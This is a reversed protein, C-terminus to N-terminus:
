PPAIAGDSAASEVDCSYVKWSDVTSGSMRDRLVRARTIGMGMWLSRGARCGASARVVGCATSGLFEIRQKESRWIGRIRRHFVEDYNMQLADGPLAKGCERVDKRV